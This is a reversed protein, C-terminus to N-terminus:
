SPAAQPHQSAASAPDLDSVRLLHAPEPAFPATDGSDGRGRSDYTVVTFQATLEPPPVFTGRTCFAGVCVVLAPGTGAQDYAIVTGDASTVTEM